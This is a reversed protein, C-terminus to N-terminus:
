CRGVTFHLRHDLKQICLAYRRDFNMMLQTLDIDVCTKVSLLMEQLLEVPLHKIMMWEIAQIEHGTIEM